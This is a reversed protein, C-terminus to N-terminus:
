LDKAHRDMNYYDNYTNYDRQNFHRLTVRAKCWEPRHCHLWTRVDALIKRKSTCENWQLPPYIINYRGDNEFIDMSVRIM